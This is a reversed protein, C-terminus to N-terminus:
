HDGPPHRELASSISWYAGHVQAPTQGMFRKVSRILHAQDAYSLSSVVDAPTVGKGLAEV